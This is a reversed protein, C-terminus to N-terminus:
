HGAKELDNFTALNLPQSQANLFSLEPHAPESDIPSGKTVIFVIKLGSRNALSEHKPQVPTLASVVCVFWHNLPDM